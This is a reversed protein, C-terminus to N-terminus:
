IKQLISFLAKPLPDLTGQYVTEHISRVHFRDGFIQKIEEPTFRYPGGERTELHSFCKLFLYGKPKILSHVIRVYDQRLDPHFVHFCGRDFVFDFEQNLHSNFIDDQIFSVDLGEEKAKSNAQTIAAESIDSGTVRFGKKALAIAQTGPGTGLDLVIGSVIKFEILAQELDADIDPNYWPMTEVQREQYLNNWDPFERQQTM